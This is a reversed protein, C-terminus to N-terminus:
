CHRVPGSATRRGDWWGGVLKFSQGPKLLSDFTPRDNLLDETRTACRYGWTARYPNRRPSGPASWLRSWCRLCGGARGAAPAQEPSLVTSLRRLAGSEIRYYM